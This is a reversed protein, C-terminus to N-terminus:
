SSKIAAVKDTVTKAKDTATKATDTVTKAVTKGVRKVALKAAEARPAIEEGDVVTAKPANKRVSEIGALAARRTEYRESAAIAKGNSALLSWHFGKGSKQVVFKAPM